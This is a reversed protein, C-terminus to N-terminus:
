KNISLWKNKMEYKTETGKHFPSLPRSYWHENKENTGTGKRMKTQLCQSKNLM